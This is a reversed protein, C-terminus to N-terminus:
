CHMRLAVVNDSLFKLTTCIQIGWGFVYRWWEQVILSKFISLPQQPLLTSLFLYIFLRQRLAVTAQCM